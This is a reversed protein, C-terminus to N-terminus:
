CRDLGVHRRIAEHQWRMSFRELAKVITDAFKLSMVGRSALGNQLGATLLLSYRKLQNRGDKTTFKWVVDQTQHEAFHQSM